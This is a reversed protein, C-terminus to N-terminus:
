FVAVVSRGQDTQCNEYFIAEINKTVPKPETPTKNDECGLALLAIICLPKLFHKGQM